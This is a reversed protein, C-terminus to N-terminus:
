EEVADVVLGWDKVGHRLWYLQSMELLKVSQVKLLSKRTVCERVMMEGNTKICVFDTMYDGCEEGDMGINCRAEAIEDNKALMDAYAYQIPDYTKCVSIFKDLTRKECRGKFTKKRM